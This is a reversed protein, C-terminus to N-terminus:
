FLDLLVHAVQEAIKHAAGSAFAAGSAVRVVAPQIVILAEFHGVGRSSSILKGSLWRENRRMCRVLSGGVPSVAGGLHQRCRAPLAKEQNTQRCFTPLVRPTISLGRQNEPM